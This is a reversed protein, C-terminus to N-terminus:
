QTDTPTWPIPFHAQQRSSSFSMRVNVHQTISTAVLSSSSFSFNIRIYLDFFLEFLLPAQSNRKVSHSLFELHLSCFTFICASGLWDTTKAQALGKWPSKCLFGTGMGLMFCYLCKRGHKKTAFSETRINPCGIERINGLCIIEFYSHNAM